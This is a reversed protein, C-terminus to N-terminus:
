EGPGSVLARAWRAPDGQCVNARESHKAVCRDNPLCLGLPITRELLRYYERLQMSTLVQAGKSASHLPPTLPLPPNWVGVDPEPRTM